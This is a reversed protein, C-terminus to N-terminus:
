AGDTKFSIVFSPFFIRNENKRIIRMVKQTKYILLLVPAALLRM